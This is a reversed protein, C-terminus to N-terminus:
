KSGFGANMHMEFTCTRAPRLLEHAHQRSGDPYAVLRGGVPQRHVELHTVWAASLLVEITARCGSEQQSGYKHAEVLPSQLEVASPIHIHM